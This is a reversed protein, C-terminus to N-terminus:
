KIMIKVTKILGISRVEALYLGAGEKVEFVNKSQNVLKMSGTIQGLMNYVILEYERTDDSVHIYICNDFCHIQLLEEISEEIGIIADTFKLIFREPDDLPSAEFTYEPQVFMNTIMGTKLDELLVGNYQEFNEILLATLTYDNEAGAKFGLPIEDENEINPVVLVSLENEPTIVYLQPSDDNGWLKYADYESDFSFTSFGNVEILIEDSDGNGEAKLQLLQVDEMNKLNASANHVRAINPITLAPNSNNAKIFFSQMSQVYQSGGNTGLGNGGLLSPNYIAYQSGTWIYITNDLNTRVYGSVPNNGTGWNIASPFPNGVLNWGESSGIGGGNNDTATVTPSINGTNMIGGSYSITPNGLTSWVEIGQGISLPYTTSTVYSWAYSSEDWKKLYIGAFIGALANSVPSSIFHWRGDTYYAEVASTGMVSFTGKDIFSGKGSSNAEIVVNGNVSMLSGNANTFWAGPKVTFDNNVTISGNNTVKASSKNIELDYFSISNVNTYSYYVNANITYGMASGQGVPIGWYVDGSFITIDSNSYTNPGSSFLLYGTSGSYCNIYFGYTSGAPITVSTGPNVHTGTNYGQGVVTQTSGLQTWAGPNNTNSIYSTTTYYIDINVTGMTSCHIDFSNVSINKSGIASIDFYCGPWPAFGAAYTTVLNGTGTTNGTISSNTAGNMEVVSTGANFSGYNLLDGGIHVKSNALCNVTKGSPITLNGTVTLESNGNMSLLACDTGIAMNGTYVPWNTAGPNITVGIASGPILHNHWNINNNWATSTSGTWLGPTGMHIYGTKTRSDNGMANTTTLTVSYAGPNTFLVIPNQSTPGTGGVFTVTPPSFGWFWGTPSNTSLDAFSVTTMANAPMTNSASFDTCPVDSEWLGRGYTGVRIKSGSPTTNDYFIELETCFVKPLGSSFSIWNASGYKVYVGQTMAVYLEVMNTNQVNQVISMAPIQPLGTSINSWSGGGNTTQYVVHSNYGGITVWVTNPDNSKVAICTINGNSVPLGTTINTWSSGGVTTKYITTLTAAYVYNSNSPAVAISRITAGGWNSMATWSTGQNTSKFVDQYGVYLTNNDNPDMVFPAVWAASGSLGSKISSLTSWHDTTKRLDGFQYEGYQTNNDSPDIMCEMGDGGMVGNSIWSGGSFLHTGNDQLGIIIENKSQGSLGIRYIQNITLTNSIDTWSTGSNTSKYIGGDNGIFVASTGPQFECCHQDCHVTTVTSSCTSSWHSKISWSTGGNTSRWINIGGVYLDNANSPNATIFVDYKGQGTSTSPTCNYGLLNNGTTSGNLILSYSTGSNNSKYIAELGGGSNVTLAYVVNSNNASVALETRVSTSSIQLNSWNSGGGTFKTIWGTGKFAAYIVTSNGPQFELDNHVDVVIQSWSSGANTTKYFGGDTAAYLINNNTLDILLDYVVYNQSPTFTLSNNWTLGGDTSKLVGTGENDNTNGGGLSWVSGGDRDGTGIYLTNSTAYNSTVAIASVGLTTNNDTLVTWTLGGNTTKWLGGSPSGIWFINSNSPHFAVVNVRGIGEYGGSTQNYGINTWNGNINKGADPYQQYYKEMEEITTTQPFNGEGDVRYETMWEWRKFQKWNPAKVKEGNIYYYGNDVDYPEWFDNFAKQYDMLTLTGDQLKDEELNETWMQAALSSAFILIIFVFLSFNKM